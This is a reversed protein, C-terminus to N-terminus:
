TLEVIGRPTDLAAVVRPADGSTVPTDLGLARLVAEVREAEPHELRMEVISCAFPLGAAPHPSRGWDIFFPVIGGERDAWPDTFTWSLRTGDPRDRSGAMPSGLSLGASRARDVLEELDAARACWTALRPATCRDLGFWRPRSPTPQDPDAAVIELYAGRALPVLRNHSGLGIHRGGEVTPAGLLSEVREVGSDLEPVTYVLHDVPLDAM